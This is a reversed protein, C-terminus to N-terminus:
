FDREVVRLEKKERERERQSVVDFPFYTKENLRVLANESNRELTRTQRSHM